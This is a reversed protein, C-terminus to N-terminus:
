QLVQIRKNGTDCVIIRGDGDVAVGGSPCHFQGDGGGQFGITRVHSGDAYNLVQVRHNGREVVVLHGDVDLTVDVPCKFQGDGEGEQGITRLHQGDSCRFVQIRHNGADTAVLNGEADFAVGGYGTCSASLQGPGSGKSGMSRVHTGDSLRFIQIRFNYSDHVAINGNGDIAVGAPYKTQGDGSGCSGIARVFSGDAYNLVQLMGGGNGSAVVLHGAGDLAVSTPHRFEGNGCGKKGINRLHRGDSGRFVQILGNDASYDGVIVNGEPDFALGRPMMFQGNSTGSSGFARLFGTCFLKQAGVAAVGGAVRARIAVAGGRVAVPAIAIFADAPNQKWAQFRKVLVMRHTDGITLGSLLQSLNQASCDDDFVDIGSISSAIFLPAYAAYAAGVSSM